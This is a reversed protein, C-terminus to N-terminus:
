IFTLNVQAISMEPIEKPPHLDIEQILGTFKNIYDEMSITTDKRLTYLATEAINRHMDSIHGYEDELRSWIKAANTMRFVKTKDVKNLCKLLAEIALINREEWDEQRKLHSEDTADFNEDSKPQKEEGLVLKDVKYVKFTALSSATWLHYESSTFPTLTIVKIKSIESM